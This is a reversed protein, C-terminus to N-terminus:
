PKGWPLKDFAWAALSAIATVTAVIIKWSKMLGTQEGATKAEDLKMAQVKDEIKSIRGEILEHRKRDEEIHRDSEEQLHELITLIRGRIEAQDRQDKEITELKSIIYTLSSSEAM